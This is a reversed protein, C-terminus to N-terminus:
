ISEWYEKSKVYEELTPAPEDDIGEQFERWIDCFRDYDRLLERNKERIRKQKMNFAKNKMIDHSTTNGKTFFYGSPIVIDYNSNMLHRIRRNRYKNIYTFDSILTGTNKLLKIWKVDKKLDSQKYFKRDDGVISNNFKKYRRELNGFLRDKLRKNYHKAEQKRRYDRTRM